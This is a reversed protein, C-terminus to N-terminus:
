YYFQLFKFLLVYGFVDLYTGKLSFNRTCMSFIKKKTVKKKFCDDHLRVSTACRLIIKCARAYVLEGNESIWKESWHLRVERRGMGKFHFEDGSPAHKISHKSIHFHVVRKRIYIYM